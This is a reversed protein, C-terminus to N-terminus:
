AMAFSTFTLVEKPMDREAVKLEYVKQLNLWYEPTTGFAKGLRLAMAATISRQGKMIETIANHPVDIHRAFKRASLDLAELEDKLFIGPHIPPLNDVPNASAM